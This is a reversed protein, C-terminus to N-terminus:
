KAPVKRQKCNRSLEHNVCSEREIGHRVVSVKNRDIISLPFSRHPALYGDLASAKAVAPFPIRDGYLCM